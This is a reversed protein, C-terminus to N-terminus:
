ARHPTLSIVMCVICEVAPHCEGWLFEFHKVHGHTSGNGRPHKKALLKAIYELSEEAIRQRMPNFAEPEDREFHRRENQIHIRNRLTILKSIQEYFKEDTEFLNHKKAAGVLHTTKNLCNKERIAEITEVPLTTTREPSEGIRWLFDYLMAEMISVLTVIIPKCLLQKRNVDDEPLQYLLRLIELNHNINDGIKFNAIFCSPVTFMIWLAEIYFRDV